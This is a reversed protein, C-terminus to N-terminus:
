RSRYGKRPRDHGPVLALLTKWMIWIDLGPSAARRYVLEIRLKTPLCRGYYARDTEEATGCRAMIRDEHRHYILTALGTVGPRAELVAAYLTPFREVYEPLPPRPGVFSMDGILINFLQPLEDLRSRRLFRGSRTIRWNKHAGTAGSDADVRVMTRFKYQRFECGPAKMRAGSYILPRGQSILLVAAVILMPIAMLVILFAALLVDMWRKLHRRYFGHEGHAAGIRWLDAESLPRGSEIRDWNPQLTM